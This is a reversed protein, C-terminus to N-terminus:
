IPLRSQLSTPARGCLPTRRTPVQLQLIACEKVFLDSFPRRTRGSLCLASAAGGDGSRSRRRRRRRRKRQSISRRGRAGPSCEGGLGPYRGAGPVVRSQCTGTRSCPQPRPRLTRDPTPTATAARLTLPPAPPQSSPAAARPSSAPRGGTRSRRRPLCGVPWPGSEDPLHITVSSVSSFLHPTQNDTVLSGRRVKYPARWYGSGCEAVFLTPPGPPPADVPGADEPWWRLLQVSAPPRPAAAGEGDEAGAGVAEVTRVPRRLDEASWEEFARRLTDALSSYFAGVLGPVWCFHTSRPLGAVRVTLRGASGRDGPTDRAWRGGCWDCFPPPRREWFIADSEAFDKGRCRDHFHAGPARRAAEYFPM